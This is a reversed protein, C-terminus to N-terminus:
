GAGSWQFIYYRACGGKVFVNDPFFCVCPSFWARVGYVSTRFRHLLSMKILHLHSIWVIRDDNSYFRVAVNGLLVSDRLHLCVM